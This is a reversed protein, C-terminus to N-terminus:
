PDNQSCPKSPSYLKRARSRCLASMTNSWSSVTSWRSNVKTNLWKVTQYKTWIRWSNPPHASSTPVRIPRFNNSKPFAEQKPELWIDLHSQHLAGNWAAPMPSSPFPEVSWNYKRFKGIKQMRNALTRCSRLVTNTHMRWKCEITEDIWERHLCINVFIRYISSPSNCVPAM